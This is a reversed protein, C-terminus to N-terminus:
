WPYTGRQSQSLSSGGIIAGRIQFPKGCTNIANINDCDEKPSSYILNYLM